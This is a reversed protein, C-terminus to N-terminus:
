AIWCVRAKSIKQESITRLLGHFWYRGGLVFPFIWVVVTLITVGGIMIPAYNLTLATMLYVQLLCLVVFLFSTYTGGIITRPVSFRVLHWKTPRFQKRAVTQHAVIPLVYSVNTAITTTAALTFFAVELGVIICSIAIGFALVLLAANVPIRKNTSLKRFYKSGPLIGDRSIAYTV